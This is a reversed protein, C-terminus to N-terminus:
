GGLGFGPVGAHDAGRRVEVAAIAVTGDPGNAVITRTGGRERSAIEVEALALGADNTTVIAFARGTDAFRLTVGSNAPFGHAGIGLVGGAVVTPSVVELRPAYTGEGGLVAATYQGGPTGVELVATRHGSGTPRFEIEVTCTAAPNLARNRCSQGVITFDSAHLGAVRMAAVATPVFSVNEVDVVRRVGDAGVVARDFDMGAPNIQLAPDGGAGRVETAVSVAEFGAEAVEIRASFPTPSTPNFVINVTCSGGAPVVVARTCSGGAVRFNRSSSSVSAPRFAGPGDNLVSIYLEESDWGVLVTGFDASALTLAPETSSAVVHRGSLAGDGTFSAAVVTDFVVVRGTDSLSPNSHAGPVPDPTIRATLRHLAGLQVDAIVLDGDAESGGGPVRDILLNTADTVFAVQSGDVNVAPAWSSLDGAAPRTVGPTTSAVASVLTLQPAPPPEDFVGNDDLDRDFRFVQTPCGGTCAPYTADVLGQDASTFVVIRGDESIAPSSAGAASPVGDRGSVLHVAARRDAAARDWVYVQSTAWEGAVPGTGWGPLPDSATTDSRFALHRGNASLAPETAGHYRYVTNPAEVPMGAVPQDRAPDGLPVTLDVVTITHVGDPAGALPHAYAIVVGSGSVSAPVDAAVDDRALGDLGTSVLEWAGPTGSCEPVVLRYVDWRDDGDDDRFLDFPV